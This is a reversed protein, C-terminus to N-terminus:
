TSGRSGVDKWMVQSYINEPNLKVLTASCIWYFVTILRYIKGGLSVDIIIERMGVQILEWLSDLVLKKCSM